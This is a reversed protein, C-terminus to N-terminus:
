AARECLVARGHPYWASSLTPRARRPRRPPLRRPRATPTAQRRASAAMYLAESRLSCSCSDLFSCSDRRSSFSTSWTSRHPPLSSVGASSCSLRTSSRRDRVRVITATLATLANTDAPLRCALFRCWASSCNWEPGSICAFGPTKSSDGGLLILPVVTDYSRSPCTCMFRGCSSRFFFCFFFFSTTTASNQHCRGTTNFFTSSSSSSNGVAADHSYRSSDATAPPAARPAAPPSAAAGATSSESTTNTTSTLPLMHTVDSTSPLTANLPSRLPLM